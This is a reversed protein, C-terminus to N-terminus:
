RLRRLLAKDQVTILPSVPSQDGPRGLSARENLFYVKSDLKLYMTDNLELLETKGKKVGYLELNSPFFRYGKEKADPHFDVNISRKQPADAAAKIDERERIVNVFVQQSAPAPQQSGAEGKRFDANEEEQRALPAQDSGTTGEEQTVGNNLAVSNENETRSDALGPERTMISDAGAPKQEPERDMLDGLSNPGQEIAATEDARNEKQTLTYLFFGAGGALLVAAALRVLKMGSGAGSAAGAANARIYEKLEQKRAHKVAGILTRQFNVEEKLAPDAAVAQDFRAREEDGMQGQLYRDIDDYITEDFEAMTM